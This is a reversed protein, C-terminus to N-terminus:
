IFGGLDSGEPHLAGGVFLMRVCLGLQAKSIEQKKVWNLQYLQGGKLIALICKSVSGSWSKNCPRSEPLLDIDSVQYVCTTGFMSSEQAVSIM